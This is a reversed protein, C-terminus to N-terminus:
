GRTPPGAKSLASDLADVLDPLGGAAVADVRLGAARADAACTKGMCAVRARGALAPAEAGFLAAFGRAASGSAFAIAEVGGGRLLRAAEPPAAAAPM